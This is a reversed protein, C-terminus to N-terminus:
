HIQLKGKLSMAVHESGPVSFKTHATLNLLQETIFVYFRLGAYVM